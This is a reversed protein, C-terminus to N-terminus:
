EIGAEELSMREEALGIDKIMHDVAQEPSWGLAYMPQFYDDSPDIYRKKKHAIDGVETLWRSYKM